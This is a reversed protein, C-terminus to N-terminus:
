FEQICDVSMDCVCVNSCLAVCNDLYNGLATVDAINVIENRPLGGCDCNVNGAYHCDLSDGSFIWAILADFDAQDIVGDKNVDGRRCDTYEFDAIRLLFADEDGVLATYRATSTALGSSSTEIAVYIGNSDVAYVGYGEDSGSGGYYTSFVIQDTSSPTTDPDLRIIFVDLGGQHTATIPDKTPFGISDTSGTVFVTGDDM